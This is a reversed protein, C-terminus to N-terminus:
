IKGKVTSEQRRQLMPLKSINRKFIPWGWGRKRKNETKKLYVIYNKCFILIIFHGDLIRCWSKFGRGKLCGYSCSWPEWRLFIEQKPFAKPLAAFIPLNQGGDAIVYM